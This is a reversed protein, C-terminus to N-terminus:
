AVLNNKNILLSYYINYSLISIPEFAEYFSPENM